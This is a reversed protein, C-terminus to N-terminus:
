TIQERERRMAEAYAEGMRCVYEPKQDFRGTECLCKAACVQCASRLACGECDRPLRIAATQERLTKWAHALGQPYVPVAPRTMQGCPLLKGDWSLWFGTVGARCNIGEGTPECDEDERPVAQGACLADALRCFREPAQTLRQYTAYFRGAKEPTFRFNEGVREPHARLPPFLYSVAIAKAGLREAERLVNPLDECNDPTLSMTVRVDIGAARLAEINARVRDYAPVGCLREYGENSTAYLSISVRAPPQEILLDRLAGDLLYGNSNVSLVFGMKQITRYIEPFDPRLTPEGGTLLLFVTGARKAEQALDIWQQASLEAGRAQQEQATLHVYCMKCHFNCRPTLEFTGGIPLGLARGKAHLYRSLIPEM